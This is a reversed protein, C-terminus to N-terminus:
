EDDKTLLARTCSVASRLECVMSHVRTERSWKSHRARWRALCRRAHGCVTVFEAREAHTRAPAAGSGHVDAAPRELELQAGHHELLQRLPQCQCIAHHLAARLMRRPARGGDLEAATSAGPETPLPIRTDRVGLAALGVGHLLCNGDGSTYLAHLGWPSREVM